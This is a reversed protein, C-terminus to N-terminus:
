HQAFQFGHKICINLLKSVPSFIDEDQDGENDQEARDSHSSEESFDAIIHSLRPEEVDM